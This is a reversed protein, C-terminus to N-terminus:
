EWARIPMGHFVLDSNRRGRLPKTYAGQTGPVRPLGHDSRNVPLWPDYSPASIRWQKARWQKAGDPGAGTAVSVALVSM